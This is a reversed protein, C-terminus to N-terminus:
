SALELVEGIVIATMTIGVVMTSLGAPRASQLLPKTDAHLPLSRPLDEGRESVNLNVMTLLQKLLKKIRPLLLLYLLTRLLLYIRM